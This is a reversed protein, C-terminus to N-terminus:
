SEPFTVGMMEEIQQMYEQMLDPHAAYYLALALGVANLILMVSGLAIGVIALSKRPVSKLGMVGLIIAALGLPLGIYPVCCGCFSALACILSALAFGDEKKRVPQTYTYGDSAKGSYSDQNYYGGAGTGYPDSANQGYSYPDGAESRGSDHYTRNGAAYSDHSGYSYGESDTTFKNPDHTSYSSGFAEEACAGCDADKNGDLPGNENYFIAAGCNPCHRVSDALRQGCRYCYM